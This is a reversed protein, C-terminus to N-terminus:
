SLEIVQKCRGPRVVQLWGIAERATFGHHKMMYLAVLSGSWGPGPGGHVAIAGSLRETVALFKSIVDVPPPIDDECYLDILAIGANEFGDCEYLPASCRLVAQVNLQKLIGALYASCFDRLGIRGDADVVDLWTAGIPLDRPRRMIILKGPVIEHLQANLPSDLHKYEGADFDGSVFDVWCISKAKQLGGLCDQLQLDINSETGANSEDSLLPRISQMTADLGRNCHMIMYAGLALISNNFRTTRPAMILAIPRDSMQFRANIAQCADFIEGLNFVDVKEQMAVNPYLEQQSICHANEGIAQQEEVVYLRDWVHRM